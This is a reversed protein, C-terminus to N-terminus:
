KTAGIKYLRTERVTHGTERSHVRAAYTTAPREQCKANTCEAKVSVLRRAVGRPKTM